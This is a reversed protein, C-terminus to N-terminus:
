RRPQSERFEVGILRIWIRYPQHFLPEPEGKVEEEQQGRHPDGEGDHPSPGEPAPPCYEGDRDQQAGCPEARGYQIKM